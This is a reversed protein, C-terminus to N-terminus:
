IELLLWIISGVVGKTHQQVVKRSTRIKALRL